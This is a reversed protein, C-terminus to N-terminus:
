PLAHAARRSHALCAELTREVAPQIADWSYKAEFLKSGESAFGERLVPDALLADCGRVFSERDAAIWAHREHVLDYGRSGHPTVVLPVRRALGEAVKLHTGGGLRTPVIMASWSAIEPGTNPLYGLGVIGEGPLRRALGESDKGILRLTATPHTARIAPWCERVFWSVGDFNPLYTFDGIMGLRQAQAPDCAPTVPTPATFGNPVVHVRPGGGFYEVDAQKCVTLVSFRERWVAERRRWAYANRIRRLKPLIWPAQAVASAHFRSPYDDVDIVSRPWHFRRFANALKQTHLWVVDCNDLLSELRIAEKAPVRVGNTNLFRPDFVQRWRNIPGGIPAQEYHFIDSISFEKRADAWQEATWDRGTAVAVKLEGITSMIRALNRTRVSAGSGETFPATCLFLIRM